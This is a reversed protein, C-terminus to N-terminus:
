AAGFVRHTARTGGSLDPYRISLGVGVGKVRGKTEHTSFAIAGWGLVRAQFIGYISSGPLSYDM